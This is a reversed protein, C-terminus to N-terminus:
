KKRQKGYGSFNWAMFLNAGGGKDQQQQGTYDQGPAGGDGHVAGLGDLFLSVLQAGVDLLKRCFAALLPVHVQGDDNVANVAGHGDPFVDLPRHMNSDGATLAEVQGGVSDPDDQLVQEPVVPAKSDGVIVAEGDDDVVGQPRM